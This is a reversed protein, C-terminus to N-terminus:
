VCIGNKVLIAGGLRETRLLYPFGKKVSKRELVFPHLGNKKSTFDPVKHCPITCRFTVIVVKKLREVDSALAEGAHLLLEGNIIDEFGNDHGSQFGRIGTSKTVHVVLEEIVQVVVLIKGKRVNLGDACALKAQSFVFISVSRAARGRETSRTSRQASRRGFRLLVVLVLVLTSIGVNGHEAVGEFFIPNSRLLNKVLRAEFTCALRILEKSDL